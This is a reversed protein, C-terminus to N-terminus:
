LLGILPICTEMKGLQQYIQDCGSPGNERGKTENELHRELNWHSLQTLDLLYYPPLSDLASISGGEPVVPDLPQM